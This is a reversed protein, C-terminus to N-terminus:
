SLDEIKARPHQGGESTVTAKEREYTNSSQRVIIESGEPMTGEIGDLRMANLRRDIRSFFNEPYEYANM